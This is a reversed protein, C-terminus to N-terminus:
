FRRCGLRGLAGLTDAAAGLAFGADAADLEAPGETVLRAVRAEVGRLVEREAPPFLALDALAAQLTEALAVVDDYTAAQASPPVFEPRGDTEALAVVLRYGIRSQARLKRFDVVEVTDGVTHYCGGTADTLFVTPVSAGVFTAYDSRMLGFAYSMQRTALGEAAVAGDVAARLREGGTEAALAFSSGRLAPLLNAGLIDVNVYAVTDELPVAPSRVYALSGLLGDEEADWLALVVSRRPEVPLRRIANGIALVAAVGAANDTAGACIEGDPPSSFACRGDPGGRSGLGDYHAGVVVYERGPERGPIVALLNVGARGSEVFPQRYADMGIGPMLGPGIKALRRILYDQALASGPTDNDRGALDRRALRTTVERLSATAHRAGREVDAPAPEPTSAM